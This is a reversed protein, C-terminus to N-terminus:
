IGSIRERIGDWATMDMKPGIVEIVKGALLAGTHCATELSMGNLYAYLFGAAYLDGAGTTDIPNAKIVGVEAKQFGQKALSGKAGTKVIALSCIQSLHDLAEAPPLATLARAEEENAFVIDVYTELVKELLPKNAEVVNYSALDLAILLGNDKALQMAKLLLAENQVLYGEVYLLDYGEFLSAHLHEASLEIAAGLFTAFTREGDPSILANAIGSPRNSSFLIPRIGASQMDDHFFRGIDDQGVHGIFATEVGLRALGHITNAASGGSAMSKSLKETADSVKRSFEFDVLQMSGKPLNLIHLLEENPLLTLIDVLANGIGIIKKM